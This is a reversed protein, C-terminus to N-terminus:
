SGNSAPTVGLRTTFFTLLEELAVRTPSGEVDSYNETLVSHANKPYGWPNLPSSDIEVGIFNEGLDGRLRAFREGPSKSDGSFRLGMVCLNDAVRRRVKSYDDDSLGLSRRRLANTPLPLSPQSLAPAVVTPDVSMALAFGGTLCMGVAGVGPGGCKAHEDRALERLYAVIPSTRNTAMVTFERSVCARTFSSLGYSISMPRGPTGFLNPLVATMGRDAVKQGFAAVLPTIGPVEHVVIVAPGSGTRFIERKTGNSSVFTSAEYGKLSSPTTTM